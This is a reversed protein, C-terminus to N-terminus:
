YIDGEGAGRQRGQRQRPASGAKFEDLTIAGDGDADLRAFAEEPSGGRREGRGGRPGQGEGGQRGGRAGRGEGGERGGRGFGGPGAPGASLEEATLEGNKDADAMEFMRRPMATLEAVLLFGDGDQDRAMGMMTGGRRGADPQAQFEALTVKGDGDKDLEKFRAAVQGDRLEQVTLKGDGDADFAKIQEEAAAEIEALTVKGDGDLDYRALFGGPGQPGEQAVALEPAVVLAAAAAIWKWTKM